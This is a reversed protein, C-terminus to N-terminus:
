AGKLFLNPSYLIHTELSTILSSICVKNSFCLYNPLSKALSSISSLYKSINLEWLGKELKSSKSLSTPNQVKSLFFCLLAGFCQIEESSNVKYSPILLSDIIFSPSFLFSESSSLVNTTLSAKLLFSIFYM